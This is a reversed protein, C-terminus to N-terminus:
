FLLRKWMFLLQSCALNILIENLFFSLHCQFWPISPTLETCFRKDELITELFTCILSLSITPAHLLKPPTTSCVTSQHSFM